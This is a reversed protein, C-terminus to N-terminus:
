ASTESIHRGRKTAPGEVDFVRPGAAAELRRRKLSGHVFSGSTVNSWKAGDDLWGDAGRKM